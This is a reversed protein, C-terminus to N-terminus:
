CAPPSPPPSAARASQAPDMSGPRKPRAAARDAGIPADRCDAAAEDRAARLRDGGGAERPAPGPNTPTAMSPVGQQEPRQDQCASLLSCTAEPPAESPSWRQASRLGLPLLEASSSPPGGHAITPPCRAGNPPPEAAALVAVESWAATRVEHRVRAHVAAGRRGELRVKIEAGGAVNPRLRQPMCDCGRLGPSCGEAGSPQVETASYTLLSFTKRAAAAAQRPTQAQMAAAAAAVQAEAASMHSGAARKVHADERSGAARRPDQPAPRAVRRPHRPRRPRRPDKPPNTTACTKRSTVGSTLPRSSLTYVCQAHVARASRTCQAHVPRPAHVPLVALVARSSSYAHKLM